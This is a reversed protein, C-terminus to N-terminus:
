VKVHLVNSMIQIELKGQFTMFALLAPSSCHCWVLVTGPLCCASMTNTLYKNYISLYLIPFLYTYIYM